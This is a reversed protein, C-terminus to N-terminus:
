ARQRQGAVAAALVNAVSEVFAAQDRDFYGPEYRGRGRLL